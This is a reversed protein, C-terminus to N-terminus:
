EYSNFERTQTRLGKSTWFQPESLSRRTSILSSGSTRTFRRRASADVKRMQDGTPKEGRDMYFRALVKGEKIGQRWEEESICYRKGDLPSTFTVAPKPEGTREDRLTVHQINYDPADAKLV